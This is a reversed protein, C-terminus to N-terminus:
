DNARGAPRLLVCRVTVLEVGTSLTRHARVGDPHLGHRAYFRLARENGALAWLRVEPQELRDLAARLLADAVGSGWRAPHVYCALVEGILPDLVDRRGNVRWPGFTIFGVIEGDLEAVLCRMPSQEDVLQDHRRQAWDQQDLGALMADPLLGRYGSRWAAIHVRAVEACDAFAEPRITVM